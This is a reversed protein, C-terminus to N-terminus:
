AACTLFSIASSLSVTTDALVATAADSFTKAPVAPLTVMLVSIDDDFPGASIDDFAAAAAAAAVAATCVLVVAEVALAMVLAAAVVTCWATFLMPAVDPVLGVIWAVGRSCPAIELRGSSILVCAGVVYRWDAVWHTSWASWKRCRIASSEIEAADVATFVTRKWPSWAVAFSSVLWSCWSSWKAKSAVCVLSSLKIMFLEKRWRPVKGQSAWWEWRM